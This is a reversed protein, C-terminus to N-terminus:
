RGAYASNERQMAEGREKRVENKEGERERRKMCDRKRERM